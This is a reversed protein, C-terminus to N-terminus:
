EDELEVEDDLEVFFLASEAEDYDIKRDNLVESASPDLVLVVTGEHEFAVDDPRQDDQLLEVGDETVAIRFCQNEEEGGERLETQMRKAAVDTLELM